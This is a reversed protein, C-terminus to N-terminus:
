TEVPWIASHMSKGASFARNRRALHYFTHKRARGTCSTFTEMRSGGELVAEAEGGPIYGPGTTQRFCLKAMAVGSPQLGRDTLRAYM